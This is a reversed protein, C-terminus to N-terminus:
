QACWYNVALTIGFSDVQHWWGDPIFLADGARLPVMQRVAGAFLPHRAADPQVFDVGSHNSSEGGLPQAYAFAHILRVLEHMHVAHHVCWRISLLPRLHRGCRSTSSAQRCSWCTTTRTTTSAPARAERASGCRCRFWRRAHSALAADPARRLNMQQTHARVVLPPADPLDALLPALPAAEDSDPVLLPTQALYVHSRRGSAAAPAAAVDLVDGFLVTGRLRTLSVRLCVCSACAGRRLRAPAAAHQWLLRVHQQGYGRRARRWM